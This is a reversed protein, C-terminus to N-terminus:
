RSVRALLPPIEPLEPPNVPRFRANRSTAEHPAQESVRAKEPVQGSTLTVRLPLALACLPLQGSRHPPRASNAAITTQFYGGAQGVM